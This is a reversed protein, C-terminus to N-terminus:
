AWAGVTGPGGAVIFYVITAVPHKLIAVMLTFGIGVGIMDGGYWTHTPPVSASVLRGLPPVHLVLRGDTPEISGTVPIRLPM